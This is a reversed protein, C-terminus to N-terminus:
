RTIYLSTQKIPVKTQKILISTKHNTYVFNQALHYGFNRHFTQDKMMNKFFLHIENLAFTNSQTIM